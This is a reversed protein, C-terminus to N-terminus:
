CSMDYCAIATCHNFKLNEFVKNPALDMIRNKIFQRTCTPFALCKVSAVLHELSKIAHCIPTTVAECYYSIIGAIENGIVSVDFNVGPEVRTSHNLSKYESIRNGFHTELDSLFLPDNKSHLM